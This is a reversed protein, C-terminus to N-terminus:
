DAVVWEIRGVAAADWVCLSGAKERRITLKKNERFINSGDKVIGDLTIANGISYYYDAMDETVMTINTGSTNEAKDETKGFDLIDIQFSELPLYSGPAKQQFVDGNDKSPDYMVQIDVGMTGKFRTFMFGAEYEQDHVGTPNPNKRINYGPEIVTPAPAYNKILQHIFNIAGTGGVLMPKRNSFRRKRYVIQHIKEQLWELTFYGDHPFYQGDKYIQRWGAAQRTVINNKRNISTEVRGWECMNNCHEEVTELLRAEAIGVFYGKEVVKNTSKDLAPTYYIHGRSFAEHHKKGDIDTYTTGSNAKGGKRMAAFDRKLFRDTFEIEAGVRGIQSQLRVQSAFPGISAYEENLENAVQSGVATLTKNVDFWKDNIWSLANGDQVQCEIVYGYTAHPKPKGLIKVLPANDSETKLNSPAGYWPRDVGVLFTGRGKGVQESASVFKHTIRLKVNSDGQVGWQYTDRGAPLVEYNNQGMTLYNWRKNTMGLMQVSSFLRASMVGFKYPEDERFLKAHSIANFKNGGLAQYESVKLATLREM